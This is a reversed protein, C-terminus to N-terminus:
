HLKRDKWAPFKARWADVEHVDLPVSLVGEHDGLEGAVEGLPSVVLSGGAYHLGGAVPLKPDDGVRNCAIVFAQNEIARAIALARWHAARVSPWCAGLAYVEAGRSLGERFLEPFRLDYCIAPCVTVERGAPTKWAYTLVQSGGSIVEGERQFPHIKAYEALKVSPEGDRSALVSMVNSALGGQVGPLTHGGQVTIRLEQALEALFRLTRGEGDHTKPIRFSFGTAFMEPLIVLDGPRVGAAQLLTRVRAHNAEPDEWAIDLQVAHVQPTERTM